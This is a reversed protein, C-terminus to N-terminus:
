HGCGNDHRSPRSNSVASAGGFVQHSDAIQKQEECLAIHSLCNREASAFDVVHMLLAAKKNKREPKSV